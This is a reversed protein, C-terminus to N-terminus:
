EIRAILPPPLTDPPQAAWFSSLQEFLRRTPGDMALSSAISLARKGAARRGSLFAAEAFYVRALAYDRHRRTIKHLEGLAASVQGVAIQFSAKLTPPLPHDPLLAAARECWTIAEIYEGFGLHLYARRLAQRAAREDEKHEFGAREM